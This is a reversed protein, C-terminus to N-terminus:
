VRKQFDDFTVGVYQREFLTQVGVGTEWYGTGWNGLEWDGTGWNGTGWYMETERLGGPLLTLGSIM